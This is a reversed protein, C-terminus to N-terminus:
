FPGGPSGERHDSFAATFGGSSMICYIVYFPPSNPVEHRGTFVFQLVHGPTGRGGCVSSVSPTTAGREV